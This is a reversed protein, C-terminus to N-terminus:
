WELVGALMLASVVFVAWMVGGVIAGIWRRRSRRNLTPPPEHRPIGYNRM